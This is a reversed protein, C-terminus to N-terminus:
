LDDSKKGYYKSLGYTIWHISPADIKIRKDLGSVSIGLIKAVERNTIGLRKFECKICEYKIVM